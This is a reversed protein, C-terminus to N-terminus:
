TKHACYNVDFSTQEPIPVFVTHTDMEVDNVRDLNQHMTHAPIMMSRRKKRAIWDDFVERRIRERKVKKNAHKIPYGIEQWLFVWHLFHHVSM